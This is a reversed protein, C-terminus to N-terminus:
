REAPRDREVQGPESPGFLGVRELVRDLAVGSEELPRQVLESYLARLEHQVVETPGPAELPGHAVRVAEVAGNQDVGPHQEVVSPVIQRPDPAPRPGALRELRGRRPRAKVGRELVAVRATEGTREDVAHVVVAIRARASRDQTQVARG